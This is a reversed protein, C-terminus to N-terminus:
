SAGDQGRNLQRRLGMDRVWSIAAASRKGLQEYLKFGARTLPYVWRQWGTLKITKDFRDEGITSDIDMNPAVPSPGIAFTELGTRWVHGHLIDVPLWNNQMLTLLRRAGSLSIIYGYAGGYAKIPRLLFYNHSLPGIRRSQQLVKDRALFRILHWNIPLRILIEIVKPFDPQLIADDELVVARDIDSDVMRQYVARHSLLCGMEARSLDRGFFLRRRLPAYAPLDGVNLSDGDIGNIFEYSLRLAELQEAMALRRQTSRELNIIFVAPFSPKETAVTARTRSLQVLAADSPAFGQFVRDDAGPRAGTANGAGM